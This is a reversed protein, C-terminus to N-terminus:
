QHKSDQLMWLWLKKRSCEEANGFYSYCSLINFDYHQTLRSEFIQTRGVEESEEEMIRKVAERVADVFVNAVLTSAVSDAVKVLLKYEESYRLILHNWLIATGLNGEHKTIETTAVYDEKSTEIVQLTSPEVVTSTEETTSSETVTEKVTTKTPIVVECSSSSVGHESEAKCTYTGLIQIHSLFLGLFLYFQTSDLYKRQLGYRQRFTPTRLRHSYPSWRLIPPVRIEQKTTARYRREVM